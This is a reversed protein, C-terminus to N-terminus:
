KDEKTTVFSHLKFSIYGKNDLYNIADKLLTQKKSEDIDSYFLIEIFSEIAQETLKENEALYLIPNDQKLVTDIDIPCNEKTFESKVDGISYNPKEGKLLGLRRAIHALMQGIKDIERLIFDEM